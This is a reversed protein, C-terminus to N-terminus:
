ESQGRKRAAEVIAAFDPAKLSAGGILGGDINPMNMLGAANKANMSGGYQIRVQDAVDGFAARVVERLFAIVEEAQEDSATLGTGIAWIPEYAIVVRAADAPAVGEFLARTQREVLQFTEEAQRQELTEGVCVIPTLGAALAALTRKNVSEDTEGFYARRESHGIVVHTVGLERLMDPAVEGTFAGSAAWHVNQSGIGIGSGALAQAAAAITPFPPCVVVECCGPAGVAARVEAALKGGAAPGMNMKWNGAIIPTRLKM